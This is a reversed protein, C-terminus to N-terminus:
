VELRIQGDTRTGAKARRTYARVQITGAGSRRMVYARIPSDNRYQARARRSSEKLYEEMEQVESSIWYGRARSSSLIAKGEGILARNAGKIHERISRDTLGTLRALERRSVANERGAPISAAINM